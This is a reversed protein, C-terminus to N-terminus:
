KVKIYHKGSIEEVALYGDEIKKDLTTRNLGYRKSYDSKSMLDTRVKIRKM